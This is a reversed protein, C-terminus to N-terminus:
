KGSADLKVVFADSGAASTRKGIAGGFDMEGDFYGAVYTNGADDVAIGRAADIGLGGFGAAWVAKGTAGGPDPALTPLPTKPVPRKVVPKPPAAAPAGTEPAAHDDGSKKSSCAFGLCIAVVFSSRM